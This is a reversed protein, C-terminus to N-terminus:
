QDDKPLKLTARTGSTEIEYRRQHDAHDHMKITGADGVGSPFFALYKTGAEGKRGRVDDIILRDPARVPEEGPLSAPLYTAEGDKTFGPRASWYANKKLDFYVRCEVGESVASEQAYKIEAFLDRAAHDARARALTGRFIPSVGLALVAILTMVIMLEVLTFGRRARM